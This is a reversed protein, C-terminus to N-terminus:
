HGAAEAQMPDDTVNSIVDSTVAVRCFPCNKKQLIHFEYDEEHFFHNCHPCLTIPLDPIM